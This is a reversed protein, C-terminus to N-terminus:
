PEEILEELATERLEEKPTPHAPLHTPRALWVLLSLAVFVWASAWFAEDLALVAAHQTVIRGLKALAAAESLGQGVLRNLTSGTIPDLVTLGEVFRSQHFATRRYLMVGMLTIGFSGAAIRLFGAFEAARAQRPPPLGHLMIVTLPVFFTGLCLGEALKPWFIQEFSEPRDYGSIWFYVAAFGLLNASALLRADIRKALDHMFTAVPKAFIATPLFVLGALSSPYGLLLQLQVILLSLLGQFCLFGLCLGVLGITFNRSGFLRLDVVPHPTGLEWPIAYLLAVAVGITLGVLLPSNLWDFDNGLNLLTQTGWLIAALLLFGVADFRQPRPEFGRERLLVATTGGVALALPINLYFLWRWGQQDVLWGGVPTGLTFPSLTFISWIALGLSKRHDPFENLVLRQGVPLTIGGSLGLLIRFILFEPLTGAFACGMSALAFGAFAASLVRSDGFRGSLWTSLPFALALGIMFDTQTWTGFSPAVGFSAAVHPLMAIYAGANFLVIVHGLGLGLNFLTFRWGRLPKASAVLAM